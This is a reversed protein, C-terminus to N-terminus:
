VEEEEEEEEDDDDGEGGVGDDGETDFGMFKEGRAETGAEVVFGPAVECDTLKTGGEEGGGGGKRGKRAGAAGADGAEVGGAAPGPARMVGEIRARPGITCGVLVVGDGVVVGEMLVCRTLRAGAGIACGSGIVSEKVGCRVGVTVNEGVLSDEGSIRCQAGLAASPHIKHDPALAHPPPLRALHLALAHLQPTTDARRILPHSHPTTSLSLSPPSPPIYALLPPLTIPTTKKSAPTTTPLTTTTPPPPPGGRVRTAFAAARLVPRQVARAVARTSSLGAADIEEEEDGGRRRRGGGEERGWVGGAGLKEALGEQWGTKAWWGLVDESVSDFRANRAVFELVWHPFIYVHADRHQTRMRVRGHRALLAQRVRLVGGDADLTDNLTDTPMCMVVQEIASRLSGQPPPVTPPPLPATALFDTEDKQTSIGELGQTPYFVCMGGKKKRTPQGSGGSGGSSLPNLAMWQQVLASGDGESVFDCPLVVFDGRVVKRVSAMRLLEGTGTTQLLGEPALVDPRYRLATLAPNTKLAAELAAASEPPTILTVSTIATRHCWDLPYWVMPRNALPLLAKPLDAPSSTFTNLSVGPGCLILAQLGPPPHTAHPM